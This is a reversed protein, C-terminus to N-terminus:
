FRWNLVAVTSTFLVSSASSMPSAFQFALKRDLLPTSRKDKQSLNLILTVFSVCWAKM